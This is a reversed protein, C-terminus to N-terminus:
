DVREQFTQGYRGLARFALPHLLCSQLLVAFSFAHGLQNYDLYVLFQFLVCGFILLFLVTKKNKRRIHPEIKVYTHEAPAYRLNIWFSLATAFLILLSSVAPNEMPLQKALLGASLLLITGSIFCAMAGKLHVGGTFNRLLMYVATLTITEAACGLLLSVPILFALGLVQLLFIEIGHSVQGVTYAGGPPVIKKAIRISLKETWSM